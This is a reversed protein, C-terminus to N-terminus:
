KSELRKVTEELFPKVDELRTKCQEWKLQELYVFLDPRRKAQIIKELRERRDARHFGFVHEGATCCVGNEFEYRLRNNGKGRLHHAVLHETKGSIESKEGAILKICRSWLRDCEDRLKKYKSKMDGGGDSPRSVKM